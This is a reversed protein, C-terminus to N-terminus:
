LSTLTLTFSEPQSLVKSTVGPNLTITVTQGAVGQDAKFSAQTSGNDGTLRAGTFTITELVAGVGLVPYPNSGGNTFTMTGSFGGQALSAPPGGGLNTAAQTTNAQLTILVTYATNPVGGNLLPALTTGFSLTGASSTTALTSTTTPNSYS